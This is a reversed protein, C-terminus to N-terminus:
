FAGNGKFVTIVTKFLIKIDNLICFNEIYKKDLRVVEEFDTINSRGSVQWLGTLGPKMVLRIKHHYDYLLFEDVSPPRAGVLSMDGILVNFFQPFEDLSHKRLFSFFGKSGGIIRPDDKIKFMLPNKMNNQLMLDQKKKDADLYMTRFKYCKFVKGNKGVRNQVFFISGPSSKYTMFMVIPILILTLIIGIIAGLIDLFRKIFKKIINIHLICVTSCFSDIHIVLGMQILKNYFDKNLNKINLFLIEDVWNHTIFTLIENQNDNNLCVYQCKKYKENIKYKEISSDTIILLSKEVMSNGKKYVM